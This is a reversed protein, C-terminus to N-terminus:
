VILAVVTRQVTVNTDPNSSLNAGSVNEAGSFPRATFAPRQDVRTRNAGMLPSFPDDPATQHAPIAAIRRNNGEAEGCAPKAGPNGIVATV